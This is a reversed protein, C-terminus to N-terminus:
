MRLWLKRHCFSYKCRAVRPVQVFALFQVEAVAAVAVAAAAACVSHLVNVYM